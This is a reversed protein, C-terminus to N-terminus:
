QLLITKTLTKQKVLYNIEPVFGMKRISQSSMINVKFFHHLVLILIPLRIKNTDKVAIM